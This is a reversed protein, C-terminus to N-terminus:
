TNQENRATAAVIIRRLLVNEFFANFLTDVGNNLLHVRVIRAGLRRQCNQAIRIVGFTIVEHNMILARSINGLRGLDFAHELWMTIANWPDIQM